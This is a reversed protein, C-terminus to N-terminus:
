GLAERAARVANEFLRAGAGREGPSEGRTWRPHHHGFFHREPHPMLGLVRGSRDCLGAIAHASGNPNEPYRQTPRGSADVYQLVVHDKLVAAAVGDNRMVLKGEAHAVPLEFQDEHPFFPSRTTGVKLQVWRDEYHDSDNDTLTVEQREGGTRTDPLFGTKVLVQFGNCIGLMLGGRQVFREIHDRVRLLEIAFVKGASLDDGYSFGGPIALIAYEELLEPRRLFRNVHVIDCDGGCQDFAFATEADCNTGAAKLVLVPVTRM